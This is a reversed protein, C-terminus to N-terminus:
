SINIVNGMVSHVSCQYYLTAPANMPVTFIQTGTTSGTVGPTYQAGGSSERIQFPHNAGGANVFTYTFGKSLYLIPDSTNGTVIGPGSFVWNQSSGDPAVAFVIGSNTFSLVGAGNTTLVQVSTGTGNPFVLTTDATLDAPAQITLLKETNSAVVVFGNQSAVPGSFTTRAM